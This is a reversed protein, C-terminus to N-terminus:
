RRRQGWFAILFGLLLPHRVMTYLWPRGFPVPSTSSGTSGAAVVQRLGFLDFHNSRSRPTCSWPGASGSCPRWRESASPIRWRGCSVLVPQWLWFLLFLLLSSLLFTTSREVSQPVLRTWWQKFGPRAMVSHQLAFLGLLLADVLLAQIAPGAPGTDIAKPRASESSGSRTSSAPSSSSTASSVTSSHPRGM